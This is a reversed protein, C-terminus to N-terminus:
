HPNKRHDGLETEILRVAVEVGNEEAMEQGLASARTAMEPHALVQGIAESLRGASLGNRKLTTGAVGLRELEAGWFSQDAMHAVIISPRGCLLSSQTTGAGGHHVIVSCRPFVTKYPARKVKFIREDTPFVSLDDWPLQIVARCDAKRIAAIWISATEQIYDLSNPMMSGFTIYLPPAGGRLFDDLGEPLEEAALGAPPNLFGCVHHRLEWDPPKKCISPSVGILNLKEAAWTQAM